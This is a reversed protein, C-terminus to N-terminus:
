SMMMCKESPFPLKAPKLRARIKNFTKKTPKAFYESDAFDLNMIESDNDFAEMLEPVEDFYQVIKM